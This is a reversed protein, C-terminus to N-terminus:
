EHTGNGEVREQTKIGGHRLNKQAKLIVLVFDYTKLPFKYIIM